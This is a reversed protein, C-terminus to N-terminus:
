EGDVPTALTPHQDHLTSAEGKEYIKVPLQSFAVLDLPCAWSESTCAILSLRSLRPSNALLYVLFTRWASVLRSQNCGVSILPIQEAYLPLLPQVPLSDLCAPPNAQPFAPM